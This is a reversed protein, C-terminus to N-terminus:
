ENNEGNETQHKHKIKNSCLPCIGGIEKIFSEQEESIAKLNGISEKLKNKGNGVREKTEEISEIFKKREDISTNISIQKPINIERIKNLNEIFSLDNRINIGIKIIENVKHFSNPDINIKNPIQIKNFDVKNKLVDNNQELEKLTSSMRDQFHRRESFSNIFKDVELYREELNFIPELSEIKIRIDELEKQSNKVVLADEKVEKNYINIMRQIYDSERGLSLLEARKSSTIDPGIMFVPAKQHALQINIGDISRIALAEAIFDPVDRGNDESITEGDPMIMQYTTKKQGKRKHDLKLVIGDEIELEITFMDKDHQIMGENCDNDVFSRIASFFASKGIDNEGVIMNMTPSLEIDIDNLSMYNKIKIRKIGIDDMLSTRNIEEYEESDIYEDEKAEQLVRAKVVGSEDRYLEIMRSNYFEPNKHSIAITQIGVKRSIDSVVKAFRPVSSDQLWCDPEDLLMFRRNKTRSLTVYRLGTSLVNTLSGGRGSNVDEFKNDGIKMMIDLNPKGRKTSLNFHVEQEKNKPMVDHVMNTLLRTFLGISREQTKNQLIDLQEKIVDKMELRQKSKLINTIITAEREVLFDRQAKAKQINKGNQFHKNKLSEMNNQPNFM